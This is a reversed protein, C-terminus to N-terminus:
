KKNEAEERVLRIPFAVHCDFPQNLVVNFRLVQINERVDPVARVSTHAGSLIQHILYSVLMAKAEMVYQERLEDPVPELYPDSASFDWGLAELFRKNTMQGPVLALLMRWEKSSQLERQAKECRARWMAAEDYAAVKKGIEDAILDRAIWRRIDEIFKM